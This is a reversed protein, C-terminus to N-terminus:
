DLGVAGLIVHADRGVDQVVGHLRWKKDEAEPGWLRCQPNKPTTVGITLTPVPAANGPGRLEDTMTNMWGVACGLATAGGLSFM